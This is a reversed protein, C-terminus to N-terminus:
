IEYPAVTDVPWLWKSGKEENVLRIWMNATAGNDCQTKCRGTM